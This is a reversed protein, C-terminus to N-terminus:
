ATLQKLSVHDSRPMNGRRFLLQTQLYHEVQRWHETAGVQWNVLPIDAAIKMCRKRGQETNMADRDFRWGKSATNPTTSVRLVVAVELPVHDPVSLLNDFEDLTTTQPNMALWSNPFLIYDLCAGKEEWEQTGLKVHSPRWTIVPKGNPRTSMSAGLAHVRCFELMDQRNSQSRTVLEDGERANADLLLVLEAQRPMKEVVRTLDRQWWQAANENTSATHAHGSVIGFCLGAAKVTIAIIRPSAHVVVASDIDWGHQSGNLAVFRARKSLWLECGHQGDASCPSAFRAFDGHNSFLSEKSRGEQVGIVCVKKAEFQQQIAHMRGAKRLTLANYTVARFSVVAACDVASGPNKQGKWTDAVLDLSSRATVNYTGDSCEPLDLRGDQMVLWVHELGHWTDFENRTECGSERAKKALYDACENWPHGVHSKTHSFVVKSRTQLAQYLMRAKCALERSARAFAQGSCVTAASISDFCIEIESTLEQSLGIRCAQAM